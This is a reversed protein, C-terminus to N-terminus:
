GQKWLGGSRVLGYLSIAAWFSEIVALSFNWATVLTLLILLSGVLNALPFPWDDSKLRGQQNAFYAIIVLATGAIGALTFPDFTM